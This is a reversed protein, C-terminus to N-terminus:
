SARASGRERASAATSTRRTRAIGVAIVPLLLYSTLGAISYGNAHFAPNMLRGLHAMLEPVLLAAALLPWRRDSRLAVMVFIVFSILDVLMIRWELHHYRVALPSRVLRTLVVGALLTTTIVREPWDGRLWAALVLLVSAIWFAAVYWPM